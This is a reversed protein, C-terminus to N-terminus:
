FYKLFWGLLKGNYIKFVKFLLMRVQIPLADMDARLAVFPEKRTGVYGIVGTKAVPSDYTINLSDLEVRVLKSTNFEKYSLEPYEHIQRRIEVMRNFVESEKAERLFKSSISESLKHGTASGFLCLVLLFSSVWKFFAM